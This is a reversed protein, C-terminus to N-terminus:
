QSLHIRLTNLSVSLLQYRNHFKYRYDDAAVIDLLLIYKSSPELGSVRFKMQPFMQRTVCNCTPSRRIRWEEWRGSKTIVMETGHKHFEGWLEKHELNVKPDDKVNEEEPAPPRGLGPGFFGPLRPFIGPYGASHQILCFLAFGLSFINRFQVQVLLARWVPVAPQGGGHRCGAM